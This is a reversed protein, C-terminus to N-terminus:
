LLRDEGYVFKGGSMVTVVEPDAADEGPLSTLIVLDARMGPRLRGVEAEDGVACAAAVTYAQLATALDCREDPGLVRGSPAMRQMAARVGDLPSGPVVPCDSSFAVTVGAAMLSTVPNLHSAREEGLGLVYADGLRALFEPQLVAIVGACAMRAILGSDLLMAHEIRDPSSTRPGPEEYADLVLAVARDGIAHTAVQWGKARGSRIYHRLEDPEHLLLGSGSGDVYPESLAATRTTLAGDAFLKLAGLRLSDPLDLDRELEARNPVTDPSWLEAADPCITMRIAAGCEAADRYAALEDELSAGGVGMDSASTIGRSLLADSARLIADSREARTMPPIARTVLAIASELLLGTLTGDDTRGIVGGAPDETASGIGAARLAASNAVAGHGSAHFLVVPREPFASDLDAATVHRAGPFANQNYGYGRVWGEGPNARAWKRLTDLLSSVSTAGASPSVDAALLTVGLGMIHMHCDHFGPLVTLSGLNLLRTSPSALALLDARSGVAAIRDGSVAVAEVVPRETDMTLVRGAMLIYDARTKM